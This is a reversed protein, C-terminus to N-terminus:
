VNTMHFLDDDTIILSAAQKAVESGKNGMAIGIQAAKLAPADNVGDGTMAVIEGNAKLAEIVKLKAEPFMRAFINVTEVKQRLVENSIQFVEEGTLGEEYNRLQIQKAIAKATAMHDGTIMKVMIGADDFIKITQQIREKPPDYFAILGLVDFVFGDQTTPFNDDNLNARGVGLVRYGQRAYKIAESLIEAREFADLKSQRMVAEVAGKSGAVLEGKNNRFIHTMLPPNGSLPYEHVQKFDPRKDNLATEAYLSHIAKEMPDFPDTESAWMAYEILQYPLSSASRPDYSTKSSADYISAVEMRNETITGTKDVCVVTASGLTEVFLPQKVIVHQKMLRFAGLAMFASFAVPIEEPLVSMALTLGHLLGDTFSKTEYYNYAFVLLFAIGGFWAMTKVLSQIQLHLPTESPKIDKLLTGISGFRTMMGVASVRITASGSTVLTGKYVDKGNDSSKYIAFAEGTLISENISFDNSSIVVGDAPVVEGEELLLIDDVVIEESFIKVINGERIVTAKASSFKKLANIAHRSRYEQFFSIGAVIFISALMILGERQQHLIFYISCSAVLLIFMPELVIDKLVRLFVRDESLIIKNDGYRTRSAEVEDHKLGNNTFLTSM